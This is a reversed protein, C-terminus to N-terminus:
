ICLTFHYNVNGLSHVPQWPELKVRNCKSKFNCTAIIYHPLTFDIEAWYANVGAAYQSLAALDVEQLANFDDYVLQPINLSRIRCVYQLIM